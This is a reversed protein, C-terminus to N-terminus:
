FVYNIYEALINLNVLDTSLSHLLMQSRHIKAERWVRHIMFTFIEFIQFKNSFTYVDRTIKM